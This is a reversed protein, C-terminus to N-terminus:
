AGKAAMAALEGRAGRLMAKHHMGAGVARGDVMNRMSARKVGWRQHAYLGMPAPRRALFCSSSNNSWSSRCQDGLAISRALGDYWSPWWPSLLHAQRAECQRTAWSDAALRRQGRGRGLPLRSRRAAAAAAVVGAPSRRVAPDHDKTLVVVTAPPVRRDRSRDHELDRSRAQGERPM